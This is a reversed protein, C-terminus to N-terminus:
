AAVMTFESMIGKRRRPIYWASWFPMKPKPAMQPADKPPEIASEIPQRQHKKIWTGIETTASNRPQNTMLFGVSNCEDHASMLARTSKEPAKSKTAAM